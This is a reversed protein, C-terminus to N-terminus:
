NAREYIKIKDHDASQRAFPMLYADEILDVPRKVIKSLDYVMGGIDMLSLSDSDTYTVLLDVDSDPTEEGRSCSGFLYAREVPQTALYAQIEPIMKQVEASPM